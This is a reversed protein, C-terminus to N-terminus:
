PASQRSRGPRAAPAACARGSRPPGPPTLPRSTTLGLSAVHARLRDLFVKHAAPLTRGKLTVVAVPFSANPLQIPLATLGKCEPNLRLMSKPMPCVFDGTALLHARLQVSFSVVRMAPVPLGSAQFAQDTATATLTERSAGIWSADRLDALALNRRRAWRSDAGAAIVVEDDFLIEVDLDAHQPDDEISKSLRMMFVDIERTRLEPINLMPKPFSSIALTIGPFDKCLAWALPALISGAMADPCGIRVEGRAPDALFEIDRLGLKLEDFAALGRRLLAQGYVTPEVGANSRDFLPVRFTHELDAIVGSVAPQSLGLEIAAKAMSGCQVVTLFVQLDRFRLRRGIGTLAATEHSLKGM